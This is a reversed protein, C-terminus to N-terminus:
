AEGAGAAPGVPSRMSAAYTAIAARLEELGGDNVIVDDARRVKEDAPLQAAERAALDSEPRCAALRRRRVDPSATVVLTRDYRHQLGAEFLLPVEHVLLPAASAEVIWASLAEGVLPHTLEELDRRARADAFVIAGLAGRDVSGDAAVVEPGFRESIRHPM